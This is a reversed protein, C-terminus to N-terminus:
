EVTNLMPVDKRTAHILYFCDMSIDSEIIVRNNGIDKVHAIHSTGISTLQVTISDEDVLWEWEEPLYITQTGTLGISVRGRAYVAHEAGELVGYILSKGPLRQHDIKFSKTTAQFAGLVTTSGTVQLGSGSILLSGTIVASGSFPFTGGTGSANITIADTSTNTTITVNTGAVLTLTDNAQDAVVDSQGAVSITGFSNGGGVSPAWSASTAFSSSIAISSTQAYSATTPTFTISNAASATVANNAWSSTGIFNGTFSGSFSGTNIQVSSSVLGSPINQLQTYNVQTSSSIVGIPLITPAYSASTSFSATTPTFTISTAASATTAFSASTVNSAWSSTGIFTGTFSGSFSGTNIQTSSSVIGSPINQLETYNIQTSSSVVGSPLITPAFSASTAVSSSIANSAWSSTGLLSGTIGGSSLRLSGTIEADGIVRLEVPASSSLILSGTITQNGIVTQSGTVVLSGTIDLGSPFTIFGDFYSATQATVANSAWSSTGILTGTFSGSFSGTNIQTSSSVTGSPLITPAFSASTAFSATAPTFTISNAASATVANNAWSSTGIFEGTFSGSFSGTNIQVSSSVTGIPLLEIVQASSSVIGSPINQLQTYDIQTSSTVVGESDLVIRVGDAFYFSSSDLRITGTSTITGGTLGEGATISTVTGIGGPAWSASTAFSASTANNAWSSTGFLSGTFSSASVNGQVHLLAGPTITGIGVGTANSYIVQGNSGLKIAGVTSDQVGYVGLTNAVNIDHLASDDGGQLFKANNTSIALVTGDFTLNAEANIGGVGTSTIVRNDTANTYTSVASSAAQLNTGASAAGATMDVFFGRADGGQEFFRLKNQFIDITVGSGTLTTNTQPKALLIEGGEDGISNNSVLTTGAIINGSASVTQNLINVFSATSAFSATSPTFTISTAASATTAFSASIANSAWSSTGNFTGTFSGSFSGTNIQASSSVTGTPLITPAYSASTAVSSSIANSAWSSTGNFNGTFSGSFSGTNIQTSSSVIGSPINQLQTYNIQTSSSVIGSPLITPAYSASIAVSSTQAWSSTGIFEGTFSGSFSGTNIQTSSSVTGNPLLAVVQTSSSVIGSPINQLQTYNVQTSSSIVGSPLITPAFSSSIAFSSSTAFSATTALSSSIANSSWSSTGIFNGTFSGSFSGTNIQASSSVTGTPLITPAYSASTAFSSSIANSAWSSTGIFNGTFSGSFSGTNIQVSSSVTGIPLVTPAYSASTAFSATAPTFTISNAASATVANVANNAWSATGFMTGVNTIDNGGLSLTGAMARGGNVLLYQTHDDADLGLLNGHVSSANVGAARFGIIPRIDQIQTINASGSQVYVAALPVVGDNFYSPISPLNANEAEVLTSYQNSNLVLFYKEDAGDGVLYVTHKTYASASMAVLASSSAYVNNPVVSSTYRAWASASPYYQTLNISSTGIPTFENESFFYTGQTVDLKFPTVNQTVTSGAAFVPGLAKRNFTSLKNAMHKGNYLTQDIFEVKIDNTVVRGLIINTENDPLTGGSTLTGTDTIYIYNNSNAALTLTGDVWDFRKYVDTDITDQLYGFGSAATINFGSGTTITGGQMVGMPSGKFILTTADTHTGDAFTVSLKRTVDNEGDTDDLFNWYFDQSNNNIKTHDSVGQFRGRTNANQVDFDYTTSEHIMGGVIRFEPGVGGAPIVLGYDPNQIDVAAAELVSGNEMRIATSNETGDGQYKAAYLSLSASPGAVYNGIVASASPFLYYNEMNGDVVTGNSSSVYTGYSFTGNIDVYEGFFSTPATNGIVKVGYDCDYISIKHVLSFGDADTCDFAAYGAGAGRLTMFSVESTNGLKFINHNSGSAIVETAQIDSGFISVYPKNTLDIENETFQGPGVEIIYRNNESSDTIYAVSASISTFDGGKKAVSIKRPDQGVEYLPADLAIQTKLFNDTGQVKGLSGTHEILVDTTCNEFNLAIADISPASGTQPAWIGRIWRQFNVGTLRLQGGNYVKFGTGRATGTARTLLCGNVIFTCGPADALAFIQDNDTGAVGGNTSTVNRLQMRGIGGDSGSTVYFGVDFSKSGSTFGGYKVNSCQLICNGSSGSGIVKANTYNTGFRVNEVYAIANTQPTTPSSYVVASTNAATSGQIQMDIVMTQDAMVFITNAPNSASVITSISSDGKIAIYPKLTVTDEIYVGPYVRVTYTNTASADTISDVATKISTYNTDSGVLGVTVINDIFSPPVYSASIAVSASTAWSSTGILTGTFSGSFSGTNIQISSSVLGVPKNSITDWTSAAGSVYSATVAFSATAPTFTISTAASATTANNAWSATGLLTGTFSGSFSGTNIQASSSVTGTPLLAQVQTSSSVIGSPINQLQTYNVQTSSSILGSPLTVNANLAYSATTAVSASAVTWGSAQASSSVVGGSLATTPISGSKIQTGDLLTKTM